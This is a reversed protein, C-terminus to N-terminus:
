NMSTSSLASAAEDCAQDIQKYSDLGSVSEPRTFLKSRNKEDPRISSLKLRLQADQQDWRLLIDKPLRATVSADPGRNKDEGVTTYNKLESHMIRLGAANYANVEVPLQTRRDIIIERRMAAANPPDPTLLEVGDNSSFIIYEISSKEPGVKYLPRPELPLPALGIFELLIQPDFQVAQSCPKGVHEYKGWGGSKGWQSYFWFERANSGVVLGAQLPGNCQLFMGAPQGQPDPHYFWKGGLEHHHKIEDKQPDPFDAWWEWIDAKFAGVAAVNANVDALTQELSVPEPMPEPRVPPPCGCGVVVLLLAPWVRGITGTRTQIQTGHERKRSCTATRNTNAILALGARGIRRAELKKSRAEIEKRGGSQNECWIRYAMM